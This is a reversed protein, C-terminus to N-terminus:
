LRRANADVCHLRELVFEVPLGRVPAAPHHVGSLEFSLSLGSVVINAAVFCGFELEALRWNFYSV